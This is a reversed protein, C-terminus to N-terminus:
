YTSLGSGFITITKKQTTSATLVLTVTGFDDTDGTLRDFVVDSGGGALSVEEIRVINSFTEVINGSADSVYASGPFVTVSTSAFHVGYVAANKSALTKSRAEALASTVFNASKELGNAQNLNTFSSILIGSIATAIAIVVIVETLTVGRCHLSFVNM